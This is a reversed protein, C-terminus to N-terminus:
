LSREQSDPLSGTGEKRFRKQIRIDRCTLKCIRYSSYIRSFTRESYLSAFEKLNLNTSILTCKRASLRDNVCQFLQSSTFSNTLETGLDDIILLQADLLDSKSGGGSEPSFTYEALQAFLDQASFYLVLHSTDLLANAICLSLFTKGVGTDGYFFLNDHLTDFNRVFRRSADLAERALERESKGSQGAADESYYDLLFGDFSAEKMEENLRSRSYLLAVEAKKFCTCKHGLVYGTDQCLPCEYPTELYDAPYGNSTLLDKREQALLRIHTRLEELQTEREDPDGQLLRKLHQTSASAIEEEIQVLRPCAAYLAQRRETLIRQARLQRQSYLRMIQDYQYNQLAM